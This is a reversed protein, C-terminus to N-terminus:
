QGLILNSIGRQRTRLFMGVLIEPFNKLAIVKKIGSPINDPNAQANKLNNRVMAADIEAFLEELSERGNLLINLYQKNELNKVLPTDSLMTQFAKDMTNNGTKKRIGRKIDRFFQEMINNTRAPQITIKGNPANVVIPDAFLKEWYKDIQAVMKRYGKERCDQPDAPFKKRFRRVRQEITRIDEDSGPSNLGKKGSEPAIQMAERLEDFVATKTKMEKIARRLVPDSVIKDLERYLKYFPTNDRWEGRLPIDRIKKLKRHVAYLRQAFALHPRDFPFGYGDGQNKGELTWFILSYASVAPVLNIDTAGSLTENEVSLNFNDFLSSNEEIALKLRRAHYRLRSTAGHKKLRKRIADYEKGFLDKGIDRLFHYHCVFDPIGKFVNAVANLIGAGMDHVSAAPNGFRRKIDELFPVIKEGKESPLKINGLVIDTISDLGTMLLPANRACTADLHLVYGGNMEMAKRVRSDAQRHAIALCVVFKKGLFEIESTSIDIGRDALEIKIELSNRHRLFLAKGVFVLLDFAVNCGEPVIRPLEGSVWVAGNDCRLCELVWEHAIFEGLLSVVKRERTKQVTLESGCVPCTQRASRFPLRPPERFLYAPCAEAM